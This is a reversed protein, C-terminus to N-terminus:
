LVPVRSSLILRLLETQRGTGTKALAHSLHNRATAKSIGLREAAENLSDGAAVAAVVRREAGTLGYAALIDGAQCQGGAEPDTVFVIARAAAEGQAQAHGEPLPSVRVALPKRGDGRQVTVFGGRRGSGTLADRIAADLADKGAAGAAYLKGFVAYLGDKRRLLAVAAANAHVIAGRGDLLLVGTELRDLTASMAETTARLADFQRNIDLARQFHPTLRRLLALKEEPFPEARWGHVIGLCSQYPGDSGLIATASGGMDHRRGYDRHYESKLMTERPLLARDSVVAGAAVRALPAILPNIKYAHQVYEACAAPDLNYGTDFTFSTGAMSHVHLAAASGSLLQTVERLVDAWGHPEAAAAYITGILNELNTRSM